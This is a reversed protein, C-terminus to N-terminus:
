ATPPQPNTVSEPFPNAPHLAKDAMFDHAWNQTYGCARCLWGNATAELMGRRPGNQAMHAANHHNGNCTFPHVWGLEQWANLAEVQEPTFPAFVKKVTSRDDLVPRVLSLLWTLLDGLDPYIGPRNHAQQWLLDAERTRRQQLDHIQGYELIEDAMRKVEGQLALRVQDLKLCNEMAACYQCVMWGGTESHPDKVAEPTNEECPAWSSTWCAPCVGLKTAADVERLAMQLGRIQTAQSQKVAVLGANEIALTQMIHKLEYNEVALALLEVERKEDGSLVDFKMLDDIRALAAKHDEDTRLEKM